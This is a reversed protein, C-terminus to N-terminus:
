KKNFLLNIENIPDTFHFTGIISSNPLEYVLIRNESGVYLRHEIEDFDFTSITQDTIYPVISGINPKYWYLTDGSNVFLDNNNGKISNISNFVLHHLLILQKQSLDLIMSNSGTQASELVILLENEGYPFIGRVNGSIETSFYINGSPFNFVYIRSLNSNFPKFSAIVFEKYNLLQTFLGIGNVMGRLERQGQHNYTEIFGESTGISIKGETASFKQIYSTGGMNPFNLSWDIQNTHLDIAWIASPENGSFYFKRYRSDAYGQIYQQNIVHILLPDENVKLETLKFNNGSGNVVLLKDIMRDLPQIQIEQWYQYIDIDDEVKINLYYKSDQLYRNDIVLYSSLNFSKDDVKLSEGALVPKQAVDVVSFSVKSILRDHNILAKVKITDGIMFIQGPDPQIISVVPINHTTEDKDCGSLFISFTLISLICILIYCIINRLMMRLYVKTFVIM